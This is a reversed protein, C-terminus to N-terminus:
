TARYKQELAFAMTEIADGWKGHESQRFLRLHKYWLNGEGHLQWRWSPTKPILAWTPIPVLVGFADAWSSILLLLLPNKGGRTVRVPVASAVVM